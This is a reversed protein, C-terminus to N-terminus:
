TIPKPTFYSQQKYAKYKDKLPPFLSDSYHEPSYYFSFFEKEFLVEETSMKQVNNYNFYLIDCLIIACDHKLEIWIGTL